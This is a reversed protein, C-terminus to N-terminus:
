VSLTHVLDHGSLALSGHTAAMELTTLTTFSMALICSKCTSFLFSPTAVIVSCTIATSVTVAPREPQSFAAVFSLLYLQKKGLAAAMEKFRYCGPWSRHVQLFFAKVAWM